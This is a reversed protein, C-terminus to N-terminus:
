KGASRIFESKLKRQKDNAELGWVIFDLSPEEPAFALQSLVMPYDAIGKTSLGAVAALLSKEDKAKELLNQADPPLLPLVLKKLQNVDKLAIQRSRLRNVFEQSVVPKDIDTDLRGNVLEALVADFHVVVQHQILKRRHLDDALAKLAYAKLYPPAKANVIAAINSLIMERFQPMIGRYLVEAMPTVDNNRFGAIINDLVKNGAM